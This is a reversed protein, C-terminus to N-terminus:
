IGKDLRDGSLAALRDDLRAGVSEILPSEIAMDVSVGVQDFTEEATDLLESADGRAIVSEGSREQRENM